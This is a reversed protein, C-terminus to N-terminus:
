ALTPPSGGCSSVLKLKLEQQEVVKSQRDEQLSAVIRSWNSIYPLPLGSITLIVFSNVGQWVTLHQARRNPCRFALLSNPLLASHLLHTEFHSRDPDPDTCRARLSIRFSIHVHRICLPLQIRVSSRAEQRGYAHCCTEGHATKSGRLTIIMYLMLQECTEGAGDETKFDIDVRM